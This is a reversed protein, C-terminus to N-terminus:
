TGRKGAQLMFNKDAAHSPPVPRTNRWLVIVVSLLTLSIGLLRRLDLVEGLLLKGLLVAIVPNVYAYSSSVAPPTYKTIITFASFGIWSGFVLLYLMALWSASSGAAWDAGQTEGSLLAALLTVTGGCAMQMASFLLTSEPQPAKRGYLAGLSWMCPALLGLAGGLLLNAGTGGPQILVAIGALGLGLAALTVWGPKRGQGSWWGFLTMYLPTTAVLVAALGSDIWFLALSVLGNGGLILFSGSIGASKWHRRTPPPAGRMRLFLFMLGGATLFRLGSLTLPPLTQVVIKIGLYTSGWFIYVALFALILLPKSLNPPANSM